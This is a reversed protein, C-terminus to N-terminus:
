NGCVSTVDAPWSKYRKDKELNNMWLVVNGGDTDDRWDYRQPESSSQAQTIEPHSLVSVAEPATFGLNQFGSILKRERRLHELLSFADVNRADIQVGNIWFINYGPPLQDHNAMHERFFDPSIEHASLASAHKPFDQSVKTFADLPDDSSMIFSAAKTSLELLESTSLPKLDGVDEAELNVTSAEGQEIKPTNEAQRDDIVIYDTRKLALEIAYGSVVLKEDSAQSSPKYRIRFPTNTTSHIRRWEPYVRSFDPSTPDVYLTWIPQTAADGYM